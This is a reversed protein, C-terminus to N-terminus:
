QGPRVCLRCYTCCIREVGKYPDDRGEISKHELLALDGGGMFGLYRRGRLWYLAVNRKEREGAEREVVGSRVEESSGHTTFPIASSQRASTREGHNAGAGDEGSPPM